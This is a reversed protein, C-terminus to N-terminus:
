RTATSSTSCPRVTQTTCTCLSRIYQMYVVPKRATKIDWIPAMEPTTYIRGWEIKEPLFEKLAPRPDGMVIGHINVGHNVLNIYQTPTCFLPWKTAWRQVLGTELAADLSGGSATVIAPCNPGKGQRSRQCWNELKQIPEYEAGGSMYTYNVCINRAIHPFLAERTHRTRERLNEQPKDHRGM